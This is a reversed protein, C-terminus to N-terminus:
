TQQTTLPQGKKYPGQKLIGWRVEQPTIILHAKPLRQDAFQAGVNFCATSNLDYCCCYKFKNTRDNRATYLTARMFGAFIKLATM